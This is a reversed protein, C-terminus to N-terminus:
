FQKEGKHCHSVAFGSCGRPDCVQEQFEGTLRDITFHDNGPPDGGVKKDFTVTKAEFKAAFPGDSHAPVDVHPTTFSRAPYNITATGKAEDLDVTFTPYASSNTCVLTTLAARSPQSMAALMALAALTARASFKLVSM